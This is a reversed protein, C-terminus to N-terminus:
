IQNEKTKNTMKPTVEVFVYTNPFDALQYGKSEPNRTATYNM